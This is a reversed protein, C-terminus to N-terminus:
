AKAGPQRYTPSYHRGIGPAPPAVQVKGQKVAVAYAVYTSKEPFEARLAPERDWLASAAREIQSRDISSM